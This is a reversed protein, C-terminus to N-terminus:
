PLVVEFGGSGEKATDITVRYTGSVPEDVEVCMEVGTRVEGQHISELMVGTSTTASGNPSVVSM